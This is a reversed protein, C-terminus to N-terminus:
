GGHVLPYGSVPEIVSFVNVGRYDRGEFVGQRGLVAMVAPVSTESLPITLSLAAGAQFKLPNLYLVQDGQRRVILSEASQASVPWSTLLPYLYEAPDVALVVAGVVHSQSDSLPAVFDLNPQGQNNKYFDIMFPQRTTLGSLLQDQIDPPIVYDQTLSIRVVGSSDLV